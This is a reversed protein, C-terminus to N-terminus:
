KIERKIEKIAKEVGTIEKQLQRKYDELIEIKEEPTFFRRLGSCGCGCYLSEIRRYSQPPTICEEYM